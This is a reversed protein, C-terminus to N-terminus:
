FGSATIRGASFMRRLGQLASASKQLLDSAGSANV